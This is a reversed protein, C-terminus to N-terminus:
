TINVVAVSIALKTSKRPKLVLSGTFVMESSQPKRMMKV